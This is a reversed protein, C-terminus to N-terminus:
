FGRGFVFHFKWGDPKGDRPYIDDFGFGYDFGILGIPNIQLRAGFGASRKLDTFDAKKLSEWVNGGEVFGLIYIPIPNIALALRLEVTQRTMARGGDADSRFQSVRPGLSRDEYGRLPTTSIYGLGTGGMFFLDIPPIKDLNASNFTSIFGFQSNLYLAVRSSNFLPMYWESQFQWKHFDVTGPLAPGGAVQVSFSVNSGSVPFIPNDISNRSIIQTISVQSSKGERYIGRGDSVNNHQANLIWDGRFYDDPWRFRRGVRLSGGTQALDYYYSQRTDFLNIGLTTPTDFLWPETFGITFTRFRSGEGFQWEFNLIQGAGGSLPEAISFNNITFGIAGTVGFAGSYGVSANINDSSKEEVEYTLDVTKGDPLVNYDPKIKEPNFYNLVSLQRISRVIAARSFYDGPRTYLERRIVKDYTKTNGRINVQGIVFKNREYVKIRIDVSDEAVRTEEPELNFTLYGNDLYLSAVDTQAENGRLNQEFKEQNYVDGKRFGLRENLIEDTYVTNGDWDINRIKYLPGEYVHIQINMDEKNDSYWISDGIVQADRYGNKKYYQSVLKKDEQYKKRDFKGSTFLKWWRKQATEKMAGRLDGDDFAANGKFTINRVRVDPGEDITIVLNVRNKMTDVPETSVTIDALLYGEEEYLKKLDKQIRINEQPPLVQGRVLGVKKMINDTSIEDNGVIKAQEYRPLEAVRILLYVGDGLKREIDIAIDSFIKLQWLKKVAQSIQDGPVTMQEGIKLGSNAIIASADALTNGEVSIGLIRYVEQTPRQAFLHSPSFVLVIAAAALVLTSHKM